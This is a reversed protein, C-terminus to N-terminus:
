PLVKSTETSHGSHEARPNEVDSEVERAVHNWAEKGRRLEEWPEAKTNTSTVSYASERTNEAFSSGHSRHCRKTEATM